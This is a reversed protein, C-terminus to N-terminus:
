ECLYKKVYMDTDMYPVSRWEDIHYVCVCTEPHRNKSTGQGVKHRKKILDILMAPILKGQEMEVERNLLALICDHCGCYLEESGHQGDKGKLKTRRPPVKPRNIPPEKEPPEKIMDESQEDEASEMSLFVNGYIDLKARPTSYRSEDETEVEKQQEEDEKSKESTEMDKKGDTQKNEEEAWPKAM